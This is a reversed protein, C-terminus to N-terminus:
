IIILRCTLHVTDNDDFFMGTCSDNKLVRYGRDCLCRPGTPSVVCGFGCKKGNCQSQDFCFPGEDSGDDCDAKVDCLSRLDISKRQNTCLFM